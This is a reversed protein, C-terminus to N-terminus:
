HSASVAQEKVAQLPEDLTSSSQHILPLRIAVSTGEGLKSQVDISGNHQEVIAFAIAMGLGAGHGVVRTTFFPEFLKDRTQESMGCGNDIFTVVLQSDQKYLRIKLSGKGVQLTQACQSNLVEVQQKDVIAICANLMVNMFVQDLQAGNCVVKLDDDIQCDFAVQESYTAAVTSLSSKLGLSLSVELQSKEDLRSFLRLSEVLEKIRVTGERMCALRAYLTDFKNNFLETVEPDESGTLELLLEQFGHLEKELNFMGAHTMNTPNNIEHAMGRVLTSLSSMKENHALQNKAHKLELMKAKLDRHTQLLTLQTDIRAFLEEKAIPKNLYDNGGVSYGVKLDDVQSKATLFLIPLQEISHYQRIKECLQYGSIGPMMVDLLILDVYNASDKLLLEAQEADACASVRHPTLSLLNILVQRNVMEDDVVLIHYSGPERPEDGLVRPLTPDNSADITEAIASSHPTIPLDIVASPEVFAKDTYQLDPLSAQAAMKLRFCAHTGVGLESILEISGGHLEVLQKCVVLGLGTGGYNRTDSSQQAEVQEFVEFVKELKDAPIGIGTDAVEISVYEGDVSASLTVSGSQTFKVANGVLNYLIQQLRKEDVIVVPLSESLLNNLTVPKQNVLPEIVKLTMEVLQCLDVRSYNLDVAHQKLKSFDLIDNILYALRKSSHVILQLNNIAAQPLNGSAGALMSESLGIMGNLPTRLEHSTNALFTDKTKNLERLKGNFCREDEVRKRQVLTYIILWCFVLFLASYALKAWWTMWWPPLVVISLTREVAGWLGENNASKVRFLYTGADINTYTARNISGSYIWDSDFGELKYAYQNLEPLRYNLAAFRLSFSQQESTLRIVSTHNISKQLPSGVVGIPVSKNALMFELLVVEPTSENHFINEPRFISLGETSGFMLEGSRSRMYAPRNYIDGALGHETGYKRFSHDSLNFRQLGNRTALWLNGLDDPLLGSVFENSVSSDIDVHEITKQGIPLADAPLYDANMKNLGRANIGFWLQNKHDQNIVNISSTYFEGPRFYPTFLGTERDMQALGYDTGVWFRGSSDEFISRVWGLPLAERNAYDSTYDVFQDRERSYYSLTNETGFWLRQQKDEYLSWYTGNAFETDARYDIFKGTAKDLRSLGGKWTGVWLQNQSDYLLSIVADANISDPDNPDHLYHLIIGKSRDLFNLGKETGVWLHGHENEAISLIGNDSLSNNDGPVHRYNTFASSYKDIKSVGYPFHGFWLDGVRDQFITYVKDKVLSSPNGHQHKFHTFHGETAQAVPVRNLGGGDTAIWLYGQSDETIDYITNHSLSDARNPDHSFHSFTQSEPHFHYLGQDSGFWLRGLSDQFIAGFRNIVDIGVRHEPDKPYFLYEGTNPSYRGLGMYGGLWIDGARDQYISTAGKRTRELGEATKLTILELKDQNEDYRYVGEGTTFWLKQQRDETVGLVVLESQESDSLSEGNYNIFDDSESRYRSVGNFTAAWLRGQSDVILDSIFGSGISHPDDDHLYFKLSHGDYRALGNIGAFWIFGHEDQVIANIEGITNIGAAEIVKFDTRADSPEAGFVFASCFLSSISFFYLGVCFYYVVFQRTCFIRNNAPPFKATFDM